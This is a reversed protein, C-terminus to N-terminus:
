GAPATTSDWSVAAARDREALQARLDAIQAQLPEVADHVADNIAAKVAAVDVSGGGATIAAALADIAARAAADRAVEAAAATLLKAVGDAATAAHQWTFALATDRQHGAYGPAGQTLPETWSSGMDDGGTSKGEILEALLGLVNDPRDRRGESDRFFSIHTHFLHSSDGTSRIGLRDFRRVTSGDPTYIVERVDRCRADGRQCAAVLGLSVSRLSVGGRTFDGIDLASAANTGPRDRASEKKSYDTNLRGVRALDDNGEHYGGSAAHDPDGVIGVADGSLGTTTLLYRRVALLDAPANTM